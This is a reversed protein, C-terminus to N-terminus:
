KANVVKAHCTPCIQGDAPKNTSIIRCCVGCEWWQRMYGNDHLKPACEVPRVYTIGQYTIANPMEDDPTIVRKKIGDPTMVLDLKNTSM